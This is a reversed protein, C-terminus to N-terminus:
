SQGMERPADVSRVDQDGTRSVEEDSFAPDTPLL